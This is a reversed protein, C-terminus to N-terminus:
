CRLQADRLDDARQAVPVDKAENSITQHTNDYLSSVAERSEFM